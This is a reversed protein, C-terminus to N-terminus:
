NYAPTNELQHSSLLKCPHRPTSHSVGLRGLLYILFQHETVLRVERM